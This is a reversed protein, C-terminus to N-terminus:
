TTASGKRALEQAESMAHAAALVAAELDDCGVTDVSVQNSMDHLEIWLVPVDVNAVPLFEVLRVEYNGFRALVASRSRNEDWSVRVLQLYAHTVLAEVSKRDSAEAL